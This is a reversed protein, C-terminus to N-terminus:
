VGRESGRDSFTGEKMNRKETGGWRWGGGGSREGGVGGEGSRVRRENGEGAEV